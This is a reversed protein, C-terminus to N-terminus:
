HRLETSESLRRLRELAEAVKASAPRGLLELVAAVWPAGQDGAGREFRNEFLKLLEELGARGEACEAAQRPTEGDLAPVEEDLWERAAELCYRAEDASLQKEESPTEGRADPADAPLAEEGLFKARARPLSEVLERAAALRERSLTEVSLEAEALEFFAKVVPEGRRNDEPLAWRRAGPERELEAIGDLAREAAKADVAYRAKCLLLEEGDTTTVVPRPPEEFLKKLKPYCLGLFREPDADKRARRKWARVAGLLEHKRDQRFVLSHGWLCARGALRAAWAGLIDWRAANASTARDLVTLESGDIIDRLSVRPAAIEVVEFLGYRVSRLFDLEARRERSLLAERAAAFRELPTVGEVPYANIFWGMFDEALPMGMEFARHVNGVGGFARWAKRRAADFSPELAYAAITARLEAAPPQRATEDRRLCCKKYKRGSGCPCEENRGPMRELIATSAARM